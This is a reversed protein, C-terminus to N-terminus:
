PFLDKTGNQHNVFMKILNEDQLEKNHSRKAKVIAGTKKELYKPRRKAYYGSIGLTELGQIM